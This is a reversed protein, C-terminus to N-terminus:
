QRVTLMVETTADIFLDVQAEQYGGRQAAFAVQRLATVDLPTGAQICAAIRDTLADVDRVAYGLTLPGARRFRKGRPRVSRDLIEQATSRADGYVREHGGQEIAHELERRAFVDELRELVVDVEAPAYGGRRLSFAARRIDESTVEASGPDSDFSVRARDLFAEVEDVDYGRRRGRVRPFTTSM